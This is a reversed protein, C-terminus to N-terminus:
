KSKELWIDFDENKELLHISVIPCDDQGIRQQLYDYLINM